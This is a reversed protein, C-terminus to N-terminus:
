RTSRSRRSRTSGPSASRADPAAPRRGRGARPQHRRADGRRAGRDAARDAAFDTWHNEEFLATCTRRRHRARAPAADLPRVRRGRLGDDDLPRTLGDIVEQMFPRGTIPDHGDIYARLEAPSRGMVPQPVFAQRLARCATSARSRRALRTSSTPTSRSRRCATSARAGHRARRGGPVPAEIVSASSPPTATPKIEERMSRTTPGADRQPEAIRRTSRRCTSPSGSGADAGHLRRLRRLPLRRPLRTKGDLTELRPALPKATVKPPFGRPDHVTVLEAM